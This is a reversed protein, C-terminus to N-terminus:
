VLQSKYIIGNRHLFQLAASIEAAYFRNISKCQFVISRMIPFDLVKSEELSVETLHHYLESDHDQVVQEVVSPFPAM